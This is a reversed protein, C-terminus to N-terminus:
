GATKTYNKNTAKANMWQRYTIDKDNFNKSPLVTREKEDRFNESSGKTLKFIQRSWLHTKLYCGRFGRPPSFLHFPFFFSLQYLSSNDLNLHHKVSRFSNSRDKWMRDVYMWYVVFGLTSKKFLIFFPNANQVFAFSMSQSSRIKNWVKFIQVICFCFRRGFCSRQRVVTKTSKLSFICGFM